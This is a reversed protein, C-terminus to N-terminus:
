RLVEGAVPSWSYLASARPRGFVDEAPTFRTGDLVLRCAAVDTADMGSSATVLCQTARGTKDIELRLRLAVPDGETPLGARIAAAGEATVVPRTPDEHEPLIALIRRGSRIFHLTARNRVGGPFTYGARQAARCADANLRGDGSSGAIRCTLRGDDQRTLMVGAWPASAAEPASGGGPLLELGAVTVDTSGWSLPWGGSSPPPSPSLSQHNVIRTPAQASQAFWIYSFYQDAVREGALNLAPRFRMRDSMRECLGPSYPDDGGNEIRCGTVRGDAGIEFLLGANARLAGPTRLREVVPDTEAIWDLIDGDPMARRLLGPEERDTLSTGGPRLAPAYAVVGIHPHIEAPAPTQASAATAALTGAMIMTAATTRIM